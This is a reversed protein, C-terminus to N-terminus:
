KTEILETQTLKTEKLTHLMKFWGGAVLCVLGSVEDGGFADSSAELGSGGDHVLGLGSGLVTLGGVCTSVFDDGDDDDLSWCCLSTTTTSSWPTTVSKVLVTTFCSARM